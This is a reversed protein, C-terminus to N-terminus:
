LYPNANVNYSAWVEDWSSKTDDDFAGRYTTSTLSLVAGGPHPISLGTFSAGTAAPSSATFRFDPIFTTGTFAIDFPAALLLYANANTTSALGTGLPGLSSYAQIVNNATPGVAAAGSIVESGINFGGVISNVITFNANVRFLVGRGATSGTIPGQNSGHGLVTLNTLVPSTMRSNVATVPSTINNCEIGNPNSSYLTAPPVTIVSPDKLSVAFQITGQYGQDFDFDDDNNGIAILHKANVSGGFFEFGDDAGYSIQVYDLTSASGVGGLTLGNLENDDTLVAGAYEIRVYRLTSASAADEESLNTGYQITSPYPLGASTVYASSIGEIERLGGNTMGNGLIVVGGWDGARRNNVSEQSTFVIPNDVNGDAIIKSGKSVLLFSPQQLTTNTRKLGKIFTGPEITLTAGNTVYTPGDLIWLKSADLTTNVSIVNPIVQTTNPVDRTDQFARGSRNFSGGKSSGSQFDKKCGTVSLAIVASAFICKLAVSKIKM